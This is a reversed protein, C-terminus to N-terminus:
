PEPGIDFGAEDDQESPSTSPEEPSPSPEERLERVEERLERVEERLEDIESRAEELDAAPAFNLEPGTEFGNDDDGDNPHEM